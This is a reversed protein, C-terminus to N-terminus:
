DESVARKTRVRERKADCVTRNVNEFGCLIIKYRGRKTRVTNQEVGGSQDRARVHCLGGSTM